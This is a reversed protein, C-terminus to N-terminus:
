RASEQRERIWLVLKTRSNLGLKKFAHEVHSDVTRLSLHLHQAIERSTLGEAVLQAVELERASLASPTGLTEPMRGWRAYALGEDLRLEGGEALKAAARRPGTATTLKGELDASRSAVPPACRTEFDALMRRAFGLLCLARDTDQRWAATQALGELAAARMPGLIDFALAAQFHREADSTHGAAIEAWGLMAEALGQGWTDGLEAAAAAARCLLERGRAPQDLWVLTTGLHLAAREKGFASPLADMATLSSELHRKSEEFDMRIWAANGLELEAWAASTADGLRSALDLSENLLVRSQEADHLYGALTGASLLARARHPTAPETRGLAERLWRLGEQMAFGRWYPDLAGALRLHASPDSTASWVLAARMDEASIAIRQVPGVSGTALHERYADEAHQLFHGLHRDRAARQEGAEHLRQMAFVRLTDLLRYRAPDDSDPRATLMSKDVLRSVLRLATAPPDGADVAVARAAHLSFTGEFVALRRFMRKELDSLLDYSWQVSAHLSQQRKDLDRPGADLIEFRHDLERALEAPPMTAVLPAALEVALPLCDLRRCIETVAARNGDTIAFGPRAAAARDAFLYVAEQELALPPLTIVAEGSIRLPARSTALVSVGRCRRTLVDVLGACPEIAGECSDLIVLVRGDEVREEIEDVVPRGTRQAVGLRAAVAGALLEGDAVPAVEVLAVGDPFRERVRRAVELALRTKGAGGPGTV